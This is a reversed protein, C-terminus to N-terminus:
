RDGFVYIHWDGRPVEWAVNWYELCMRDSQDVESYVDVIKAHLRKAVQRVTPFETRGSRQFHREASREILEALM